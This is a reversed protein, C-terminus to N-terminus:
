WGICSVFVLYSACTSNWGANVCPNWKLLMDSLNGTFYVYCILLAKSSYIYIRICMYLTYIYLTFSHCMFTVPEFHQVYLSTYQIYLLSFPFWRKATWNDKGKFAYITSYDSLWMDSNLNPGCSCDTCIDVFILKQKGFGCLVPKNEELNAASM